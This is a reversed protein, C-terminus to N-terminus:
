FLLQDFGGFLKSRIDEPSKVEFLPIDIAKAKEFGYYKKKARDSSTSNWERDEYTIEFGDEYFPAWFAWHDSVAPLREWYTQDYKYHVISLLPIKEEDDGKLDVMVGYWPLERIDEISAPPNTGKVYLKIFNTTLWGTYDTDSKYRMFRPTITVYGEQEGVRDLESFLISLNEYTEIIINTAQVVSEGNSQITSM